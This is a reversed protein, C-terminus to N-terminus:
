NENPINKLETTSIEFVAAYKQLIVESLKNFVKPKFHRKVRWKWLGVYSALITLDMKHVEMYYMIPSVKGALVDKKAAAIRENIGQIANDLAITKPDWGTSKTTVYEGEDNVAYCLEKFDKSKLSSDDQPVQNKKM